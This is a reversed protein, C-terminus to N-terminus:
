KLLTVHGMLERKAETRAVEFRIRYVYVGSALVKGGNKYSGLWAEYPDETSFVLQGWRDYILMEFDTIAPGNSSM